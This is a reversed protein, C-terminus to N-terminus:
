RKWASFQEQVEAQVAALGAEELAKQLRRAAKTIDEALGSALPEELELTIGRIAAAEAAVPRSDFRFGLAVSAPARANERGAAQWAGVGLPDAAFTLTRDGLQAVFDPRYQSGPALAIVGKERDRWQWHRGEIGYALLNYIEADTHLWELFLMVRRVREPELAIRANVSTLSSLVAGTSLFSPALPQDIWEYGYRGARELASGPWVQCGVEVLYQGSRYGEGAQEPTLTEEPLYGAQQWALRLAALKQFEPTQYWNIVAGRPDDYRVVFPGWLMDYGANEPLLLDARAAVRRVADGNAVGSGELAGADLAAQVKALLLALDAYTHVQALDAQLDLARVVDARISFGRPSAWAGQNPITFIEGSRLLGEWAQAPLGARLGPLRTELLNEVRSTAPNPYATLPLLGGEELWSPYSSASISVLDWPQNGARIGAMRADFAAWDIVRMEVQARFGRADLVQNLRDVVLPLDQPATGRLYWVIPPEIKLLPTATPLPAPTRTPEPGAPARAATHTPRLPAPQEGGVPPAPAASGLCSQLCFAVLLLAFVARAPSPYQPRLPKM